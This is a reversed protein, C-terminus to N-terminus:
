SKTDKSVSTSTQVTATPQASTATPQTSTQQTDQEASPAGFGPLGKGWTFLGM